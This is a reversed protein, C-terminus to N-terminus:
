IVMVTVQPLHNAQETGLGLGQTPSGWLCKVYSPACGILFVSFLTIRIPYLVFYGCVILALDTKLM